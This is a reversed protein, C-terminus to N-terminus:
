LSHQNKNEALKNKRKAFNKVDETFLIKELEGANPAPIDPPVLKIDKKTQIAKRTDGGHDYKRGIFKATESMSEEHVGTNGPKSSDITCDKLEQCGSATKASSTTRSTKQQQGM